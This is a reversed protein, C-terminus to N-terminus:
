NRLASIIIVIVFTKKKKSYFDFIFMICKLFLKKRRLRFEVIHKNHTKM